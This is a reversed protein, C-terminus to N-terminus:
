PMTTTRTKRSDVMSCGLASVSSTSGVSVRSSITPRLLMSAADVKASGPSRRANSRAIDSPIRVFAPFVHSPKAKAVHMVLATRHSSCMGVLIFPSPFNGCGLVVLLVYSVKFVCQDDMATFEALTWQMKMDRLAMQGKRLGRGDDGGAGDAEEAPVLKISGDKGIVRKMTATAGTGGSNSSAPADDGGSGSGAAAAAPPKAEACTKPVVGCCIMSGNQLGLEGLTKDEDGNAM